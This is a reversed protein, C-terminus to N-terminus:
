TYYKYMGLYWRIFRATAAGTVAYFNTIKRFTLFFFRNSVINIPVQLSFVFFLFSLTLQTVATDGICSVVIYLIMTENSKRFSDRLTPSMFASQM